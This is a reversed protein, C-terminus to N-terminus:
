IDGADGGILSCVKLSKSNKKASVENKANYKVTVEVVKFTLIKELEKRTFEDYEALFKDPKKEYIKLYREFDPKIPKLHLRSFFNSQKILEEVNKEPTLPVETYKQSAINDILENAYNTIILEEITASVGKTTSTIFYIIPLIGITMVVITIIIEVMSFAKKTFFFKRLTLNNM